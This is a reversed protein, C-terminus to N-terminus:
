VIGRGAAADIPEVARGEVGDKERLATRLAVEHATRLRTLSIGPMAGLECGIRPRAEGLL